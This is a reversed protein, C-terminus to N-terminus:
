VWLRVPLVCQSNSLRSSQERSSSSSPSSSSPPNEREATQIKLQWVRKVTQKCILSGSSFVTPVFDRFCPRSDFILSDTQSDIQTSTKKQHKLDILFSDFKTDDDNDNLAEKKEQPSKVPRLWAAKPQKGWDSKRVQLCINPLRTELAAKVM